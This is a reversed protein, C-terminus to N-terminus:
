HIIKIPWTSAHRCSSSRIPILVRPVFSTSYSTSLGALYYAGAASTTLSPLVWRLDSPLLSARVNKYFCVKVIISTAGVASEACDLATGTGDQATCMEEIDKKFYDLVHPSKHEIALLVRDSTHDEMSSIQQSLRIFGDMRIGLETTFREGEYYASGTPELVNRAASAARCVLNDFVKVSDENTLAPIRVEKPQQLYLYRMVGVLAHVPQLDFAATSHAHNRAVLEALAQAILRKMGAFQVVHTPPRLNPQNVIDHSPSWATTSPTTQQYPRTSPQQLQVAALFAQLDM